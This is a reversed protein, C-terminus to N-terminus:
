ADALDEPVEWFPEHRHGFVEDDCDDDPDNSVWVGGVSQIPSGCHECCIPRKTSIDCDWEVEGRLWPSVLFKPDTFAAYKDAGCLLYNEAETM